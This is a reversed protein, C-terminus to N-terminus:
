IIYLVTNDSTHSFFVSLLFGITKFVFFLFIITEDFQTTPPPSSCSVQPNNNPFLEGEKIM